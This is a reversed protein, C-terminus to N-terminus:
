SKRNIEDNFSGVCLMNLKLALNWFPVVATRAEHRFASSTGSHQCMVTADPTTLGSEKNM